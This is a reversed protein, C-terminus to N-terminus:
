GPSGAERQASGPRAAPARATVVGVDCRHRMRQAPATSRGPWCLFLARAAIFGERCSREPPSGFIAVFPMLSVFFQLM